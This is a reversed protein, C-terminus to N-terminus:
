SKKQEVIIKLETIDINERILITCIEDGKSYAMRANSEFKRVSGEVWHNFLMQKKYFNFVDELSVAGLYSLEGYRFSTTGHIISDEQMEFLDPLPIDRMVLDKRHHTMAVNSFAPEGEVVGPPTQCGTLSLALAATLFSFSTKM